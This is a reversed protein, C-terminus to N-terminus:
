QQKSDCHSAKRVHQKPKGIAVSHCSGGRVIAVWFLQWGSLQWRQCNGGLVIAVYSLWWRPCHKEVKKQLLGFILLLYIALKPSGSKKVCKRALMVLSSFVLCNLLPRFMTIVVNRIQDIHARIKYRKWLKTLIQFLREWLWDWTTKLSLVTGQRQKSRHLCLFSVRVCAPLLLRCYLKQQRRVLLVRKMRSKQGLNEKKFANRLLSECQIAIFEERFGSITIFSEPLTDVDFAISQAGM